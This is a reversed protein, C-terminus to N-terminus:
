FEMYIFEFLINERKKKDKKEAYYNLVDMNHTGYNM